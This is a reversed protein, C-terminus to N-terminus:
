RAFNDRLFHLLSFSKGLCIFILSNVVVLCAKFSISFPTRGALSYQNLYTHLYIWFVRLVTIHHTLWKVRTKLNFSLYLFYSYDSYNTLSYVIYFTLQLMSFMPSSYFPPAKTHVLNSDTQFTSNLSFSTNYLGWALGFCFCYIWLLYLSECFIFSDSCMVMSFWWNM